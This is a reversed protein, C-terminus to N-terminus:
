SVTYPGPRWGPRIGHQSRTRPSELWRPDITSPPTVKWAFSKAADDRSPEARLRVITGAIVPEPFVHIIADPM